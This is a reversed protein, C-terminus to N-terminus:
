KMSLVSMSAGTGASFTATVTFSASATAQRIFAATTASETISDYVETPGTWTCTATGNDIVACAFTLSGQSVAITGTPDDAGNYLTAEPTTSNLDTATFVHVVLQQMTDNMTIAITATTGAAVTLGIWGSFSNASDNSIITASTGGITASSITRAASGRGTVGVLVYRDASATGIAHDTFTYTIANTTDATSGIYAGAADAFGGMHVAPGFALSTM